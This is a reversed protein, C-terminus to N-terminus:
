KMLHCVFRLKVTMPGKLGHLPLPEFQCQRAATMTTAHLFPPGSLVAVQSVVGEDEVTLLIEVVAADGSEGPQLQYHVRPIFLPILAFDFAKAVVTAQGGAGKGTGGVGKGNGRGKARPRGDGGPEATPHLPSVEGTFPLDMAIPPLPPLDVSALSVQARAKLNQDMGKGPRLSEGGSGGGNFGVSPDERLWVAPDAMSLSVIRRIPDTSRSFASPALSLLLALLSCTTLVAYGTLLRDKPPMSHEIPSFDLTPDMVLDHITTPRCIPEM